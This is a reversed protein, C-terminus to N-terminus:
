LFMDRFEKPMLYKKNEKDVKVKKRVDNVYWGSKGGAKVTLDGPRLEVYNGQRSDNQYWGIYISNQHGDFTACWGHMKGDNTFNGEIIVGNDKIVRAFGEPNM